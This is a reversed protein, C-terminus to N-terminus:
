YDGYYEVNASIVIGLKSYHNKEEFVRGYCMQEFLSKAAFYAQGVLDQSVVADVTSDKLYPVIEEYCDFGVLRIQDELGRARLTEAVSPLKYSVDYIGALDPYLDLYEAVCESAREESNINQVIDLIELDAHKECEKAFGEYRDKVATDIEMSNTLLVLIRGGAPLLKRMLEGAVCGSQFYDPGVYTRREEEVYRNLYVINCGLARLEDVKGKIVNSKSVAIIFNRIGEDYLSQLHELQKEPELFESERVVIKLGNDRFEEQARELGKVATKAFYPSLHLIGVYGIVYERNRALDRANYNPVYHYKELAQEVKRRTNETVYGKNNIVKYITTRSINIEESIEELSMRKQM